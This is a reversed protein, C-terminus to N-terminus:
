VIRISSQSSACATEWRRSFPLSVPRAYSFCLIIGFFVGIAISICAYSIDNVCDEHGIYFLEDDDGGFDDSSAMILAPILFPFCLGVSAFFMLNSWYRVSVTSSACDVGSSNPDTEFRQPVRCRKFDSSVYAAVICGPEMNMYWDRTWPRIGGGAFCENYVWKM